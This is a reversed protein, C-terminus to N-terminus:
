GYYTTSTIAARGLQATCFLYNTGLTSNTNGFGFLFSVPLTPPFSAWAEITVGTYNNNILGAPLNVYTGNTGNLVLQGGAIVASGKLTGNAAAISDIATVSGSPESFFSYRHTLVSHNAHMAVVITRTSLVGAYQAIVNNTGPGVATILGNTPNVALVNTDGSSYSCIRPSIWPTPM